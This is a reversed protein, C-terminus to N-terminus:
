PGNNGESGMAVNLMVSSLSSVVTRPRASALSLEMLSSSEAATAAAPTAEKTTRERGQRICMISLMQSSKVALDKGGSVPLM